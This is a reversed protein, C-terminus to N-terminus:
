LYKVTCMAPHPVFQEVDTGAELLIRRSEIDEGCVYYGEWSDSLGNAPVGSVSTFETPIEQDTKVKWTGPAGQSVVGSPLEFDVKTVIANAPLIVAVSRKVDASVRAPFKGDMGRLLVTKEEVELPHSYKRCVPGNSVYESANYEDITIWTVTGDLLSTSRGYPQISSSVGEAVCEYVWAGARVVDGIIYNTDPQWADYKNYLSVQKGICNELYIAPLAGINSGSVLDCGFMEYIDAYNMSECGSYRVSKKYATASNTITYKHLGMLQCNNYSVVPGGTNGMVYEHAILLPAYPNNSQSSEDCNEFVVSGQPWECYLVRSKASKLEFRSDKCSFSCIGLSHSNGELSFLVSDDNQFDIDSFDCGDIKVHGGKTMKAFVGEFSWVKCKDFWYNLFQDNDESFLFATWDGFINCRNLSFESNNNTGKLRFGYRWQGSFSCRTFDYDQAGGDSVSHAFDSILDNCVFSIDSMRLLLIADNNYFLPGSVSPHYLIQTVQQGSGRWLMGETRQTYSSDMFVEPETILYDGAPIFISVSGHKNTNSFPSPNERVKSKWADRAAIFAATDDTVGDGKAGFDLVNIMGTYDSLVTM